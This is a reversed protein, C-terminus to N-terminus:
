NVFFAWSITRATSEGDAINWFRATVHVEGTPYRDIAKDPGPTFFVRNRNNPRIGLSPDYAPDDPGIAGDLQDEPIAIGNITLRGDYGSLLEVGVSTQRLVHSAPEPVRRVVAPDSVAAPHSTSEPSKQLTVVLFAIAAGLACAMLVRRPWRWPDPRRPLAELEAVADASM